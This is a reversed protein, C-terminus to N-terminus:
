WMPCSPEFSGTLTATIVYDDTPTAMPNDDLYQHTLEFSTTGAAFTFQEVNDPSLPDGWDLDLTFTDM